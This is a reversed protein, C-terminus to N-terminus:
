SCLVSVGPNTTGPIPIVNPGQALLWALTVQASTADHKKGIEVLTDVLKLILQFNEKRLRPYDLM